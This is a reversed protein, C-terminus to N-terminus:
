PQRFTGGITGALFRNWHPRDIILVPGASNKSDRLAVPGQQDGLPAVEVCNGSQSRSSKRWVATALRDPLSNASTM